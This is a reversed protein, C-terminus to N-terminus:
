KLHYPINFIINAAQILAVTRMKGEGSVGKLTKNHHLLSALMRNRFTCIHGSHRLAEVQTNFIICEFNIVTPRNKNYVFGYIIPTYIMAMVDCLVKM